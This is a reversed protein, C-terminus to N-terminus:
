GTKRLIERVRELVDQVPIELCELNRRCMNKYCPRCRVDPGELTFAGSPGTRHPVTSVFIVLTPVGCARAFHAAGSDNSIFLRCRSLARAFQNLSLGVQYKAKSDGISDRVQRQEGPGGYVVVPEDLARSLAGFSPWQVPDGTVSIPNLGIHGQPIDEGVWMSNPIFRPSGSVEIGLAKALAMYREARHGSARVVDTLLWTRWDGAFGVRRQIRRAQWAARFSPSFLVAVDGQTMTCPAKVEANIERYLEKGWKPALITCEGAAHALANLTPMAMVGDGLHNPARAVIHLNGIIIRM